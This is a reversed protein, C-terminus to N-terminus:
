FRTNALVHGVQNTYRGNPSVWAYIEKRPFVTSKIVLGKGVVFDILKSENDNTNYPYSCM